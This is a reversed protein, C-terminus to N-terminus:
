FPACGGANPAHDRCVADGRAKGYCNDCLGGEEVCKLARVEDCKTCSYKYCDVFDCWRGNGCDYCFGRGCYECRRGYSDWPCDPDPGCACKITGCHVCRFPSASADTHRRHYEVAMALALRCEDLRISKATNKWFGACACWSTVSSGNVTEECYPLASTSRQASLNQSLFLHLLPTGCSSPSPSTQVCVTWM